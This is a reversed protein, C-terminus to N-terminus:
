SKTLGALKLEAGQSATRPVSHLLRTRGCKMFARRVMNLIKPHLTAAGSLHHASGQDQSDHSRWTPAMLVQAHRARVDIGNDVKHAMSCSGCDFRGDM